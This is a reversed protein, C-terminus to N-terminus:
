MKTVGFFNLQIKKSYFGYISLYPSPIRSNRLAKTPGTKIYIYYFTFVYIIDLKTRNDPKLIFLTSNFAM